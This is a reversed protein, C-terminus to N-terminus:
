AARETVYDPKAALAIEAALDRGDFQNHIGLNLLKYSLERNHITIYATEFVSGRQIEGPFVDKWYADGLAMQDCAFAAAAIRDPDCYLIAMLM